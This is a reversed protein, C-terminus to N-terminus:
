RVFKLRKLEKFSDPISIQFINDKTQALRKRTLNLSIQKNDKNFSFQIFSFYSNKQTWQIVGDLLRCKKPATRTKQHSPAFRDIKQNQMECEWNQPAQNRLAQYFAPLHNLFWQIEKQTDVAQLSKKMYTKESPFMLTWGQPNKWLFVALVLGFGGLIDARLQTSTNDVYVDLPHQVRRGKYFFQIEGHLFTKSSDEPQLTRCSLLFLFIFLRFVM